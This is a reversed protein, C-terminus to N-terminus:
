PGVLGKSRLIEDVLKSRHVHGRVHRLVRRPPAGGDIAADGPMLAVSQALPDALSDFYDTRLHCFRTHLSPETTPIVYRIEVEGDTVVVRDILLDVLQRRQAFSALELGVSLRQCLASMTRAVAGVEVFRRGQRARRGTLQGACRAHRDVHAAIAQAENWRPRQTTSCVNRKLSRLSLSPPRKAVARRPM